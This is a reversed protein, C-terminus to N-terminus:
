LIKDIIDQYIDILDQYFPVIEKEKEFGGIRMKNIKGEKDIIITYPYISMLKFTENMIRESDAITLYKFSHKKFFKKLSLSKDDALSIFTIKKGSYLEVLKNLEPIERVCPNCGIAWFNLVVVRGKLKSLEILNGEM